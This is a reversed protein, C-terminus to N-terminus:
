VSAAEDEELEDVEQVQARPEVEVDQEPEEDPEAPTEAAAVDGPETGEPLNIGVLKLLPGVPMNGVMRFRADQRLSTLATVMDEKGAVVPGLREVLDAMKLSSILRPNVESVVQKIYPVFQGLTDLNWRM